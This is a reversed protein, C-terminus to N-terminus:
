PLLTAEALCLLRTFRAIPSCAPGFSTLGSLAPLSALEASDARQSVMLYIRLPQQEVCRTRDGRARPYLQVHSRLEARAVRTALGHLALLNAGPIQMSSLEDM